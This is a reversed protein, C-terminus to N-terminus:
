FGFGFGVQIINGEVSNFYGANFALFNFGSIWLGGGQSTHWVDSTDNPSWVRGYDFGGYIGVTVPAVATLYRKIRLRLDSTQYFYTKGTFREDRFGRL